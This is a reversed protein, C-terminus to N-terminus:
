TLSKLHRQTIVITRSCEVLQTALKLRLYTFSSKIHLVVRVQTIQTVYSVKLSAVHDRNDQQVRSVVYSVETKRLYTFTKLRVLFYSVQRLTFFLSLRLHIKSNFTTPVYINETKSLFVVGITAYFLALPTFTNLRVLFYQSWMYGRM